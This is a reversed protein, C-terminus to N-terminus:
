PGRPRHSATGRRRPRAAGPPHRTNTKELLLRCVLNSQSQLESTHEESRQKHARKRTQLADIQSKILVVQQQEAYIRCLVAVATLAKRIEILVQHPPKLRKGAHARDTERVTRKDATASVPLHEM